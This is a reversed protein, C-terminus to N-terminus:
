PWIDIIAPAMGTSEDDDAAAALELEDFWLAATPINLIGWDGWRRASRSEFRSQREANSGAYANFRTGSNTVARSSNWLGARLLNQNPM